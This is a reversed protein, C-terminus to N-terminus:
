ITVNLFRGVKKWFNLKYWFLGIVITYIFIFMPHFFLNLLGLDINSFIKDLILLFPFLFMIFSLFLLSFVSSDLSRELIAKEHNKPNYFVQVPQNPPYKNLFDKIDTEEGRGMAWQIGIKIRSSQYPLNNVTYAYIIKAQFTTDEMEDSSEIKSTIIEGVVSPWKKSSRSEKIYRYFM